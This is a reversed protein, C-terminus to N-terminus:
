NWNHYGGQRFGGSFRAGVDAHEIGSPDSPTGGVVMRAAATLGAQLIAPESRSPAGHSQRSM